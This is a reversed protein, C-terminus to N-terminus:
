STRREESLHKFENILIRIDTRLTIDVEAMELELLSIVHSISDAENEIKALLDRVEDLNAINAGVNEFAQNLLTVFSM